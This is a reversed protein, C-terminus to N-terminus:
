DNCAETDANFLGNFEVDNWFQMMGPGMHDTPRKWFGFRSYFGELEKGAFVGIYCRKIANRKFFNMVYEMFRSGIGQRQYEPEIIIEQIYYCLGGDGIVRAFGIVRGSDYACVCFQSNPLARRVTVDELSGWGATERLRNYEEASVITERYEIM